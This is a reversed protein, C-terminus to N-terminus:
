KFLEIFAQGEATISANKSWILHARSTITPNDIRKLLLKPDTSQIASTYPAIAIGIDSAAWSLSSSINDNQCIVTPVFGRQWCASTLLDAYRRHIILPKDKLSALSVVTSDPDDYFRATAITFFHDVGEEGLAKDKVQRTNFLSQNFPERIVGFDVEGQDLLEIVNTSNGERLEFELYPFKEKLACIKDPLVRNCISSVSGIRILTRPDDAHSQIELITNNVLSIIERARKQLLIGKQTISIHKKGRTFLTAGLESELTKLQLSLPPQSINLNAAAKTISGTEAIALFYELQKLTM